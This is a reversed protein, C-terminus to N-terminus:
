ETMQWLTFTEQTTSFHSQQLRRSCYQRPTATDVDDQAAFANVQPM